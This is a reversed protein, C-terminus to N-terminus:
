CKDKDPREGGGFCNRVIFFMLLMTLGNVMFVLGGTNGKRHLYRAASHYPRHRPSFKISQCEATMERTSLSVEDTTAPTLLIDHLDEGTCTSVRHASSGFFSAQATYTTPTASSAMHTCWPVSCPMSSSCSAKTTFRAMYIHANSSPQIIM